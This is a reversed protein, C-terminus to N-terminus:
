EAYYLPDKSDELTEKVKEFVENVTIAHMCRPDKCVQQYCPVPCGVSKQIIIANDRPYPGTLDVSTPGFLALIKSAGAANAIHLPGSDATVFIASRQALAGLQKLNLEGCISLAESRMEKLILGVLKRDKEGGSFIVPRRLETIIRDALQAWKERPWRKPMWNGGPNLLIFDEDTEIGHHALFDDVLHRDRRSVPFDLHKSDVSFGAGRIVELYYEIRHVSHQDPPRVRETLLFSRKRTVYGVRNRIGALRCILARSFSRHLFVVTDFQKARLFRIFALKSAITKHSHREDFVIIEDLYPNGELVQYCRSPICCAIFSDPFNQRINRITATSFLVDGLWNVNFILIRKSSRINRKM